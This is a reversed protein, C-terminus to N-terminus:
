GAGLWEWPRELPVARVKPTTLSSEIVRISATM